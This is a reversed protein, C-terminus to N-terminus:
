LIRVILFILTSKSSKSFDLWKVSLFGVFRAQCKLHELIRRGNVNIKISTYQVYHKGLANSSRVALVHLGNVPRAGSGAAKTKDGIVVKKISM